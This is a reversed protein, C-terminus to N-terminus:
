MALQKDHLYRFYKKKFSELDAVDPKDILARVQYIRSTVKYVWFVLMIEPHEQSVITISKGGGLFGGVWYVVFKGKLIRKDINKADLDLAAQEEAADVKDRSEAYTNLFKRLRRVEPMRYSNRYQKLQEPNLILERVEQALSLSPRGSFAGMVLLILSFCLFIKVASFRIDGGAKM